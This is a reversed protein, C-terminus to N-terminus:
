MKLLTGLSHCLSVVVLADEVAVLSNDVVGLALVVAVIADDHWVLDSSMLSLVSLLVEELLAKGVLEGVHLSFVVRVAGTVDVGLSAFQEHLAKHVGRLVNKGTKVSCLILTSQATTSSPSERFLQAAIVGHFM